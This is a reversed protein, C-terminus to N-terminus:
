FSFRASNLEEQFAELNVRFLFLLIIADKKSVNAPKSPIALCFQAREKPFTELNVRFLFFQTRKFTELNARSQCHSTSIPFNETQLVAKKQRPFIGPKSPIPLIANKQSVSNKPKSSLPLITNNQSPM